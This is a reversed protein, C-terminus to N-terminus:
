FLSYRPRKNTRVPVSQNPDGYLIDYQYEPTPTHLTTQKQDRLERLTARIDHVSSLNSHIDEWIAAKQHLSHLSNYLSDILRTQKSITELILPDTYLETTKTKERQDNSTISHLNETISKSNNSLTSPIEATSITENIPTPITLSKLAVTDIDDEPNTPQDVPNKGIIIPDPLDGAVTPNTDTKSKRKYTRKPPM